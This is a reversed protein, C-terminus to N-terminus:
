KEVPVLIQRLVFSHSPNGRCAMTTRTFPAGVAKLQLQELIQGAKAFTDLSRAPSDAAMMWTVFSGAAIDQVNPTDVPINLTVASSREILMGRTYHSFDGKDGTYYRESASTYFINSFWPEAERRVAEDQFIIEEGSQKVEFRYFGELEELRASDPETLYREYLDLEERIRAEDLKLLSLQGLVEGHRQRYAAAIDAPEKAECLKVGAQKFLFGPMATNRSRGWASFIPLTM